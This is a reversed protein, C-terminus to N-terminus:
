KKTSEIYEKLADELKRLPRIKTTLLASYQPREAPRPFSNGDVPNIKTDVKAIKFLLKCANYWSLAGANTIHYIGKPVEKDILEKTKKALDLTYTFCSIEEDVVDLENMKKSLKLMIDFFSPKASPNEGKPGFLKSTRIIYWILSPNNLAVKAINQEGLYKSEGYKNVPNPRDKEEYGMSKNGPFVYDTSYHILIANIEVCLKALNGPAVGNIEKALEFQHKDEECNDVANYSATNIIINPNIKKIKTFIEEKKTIDLEEKDWSIVTYNSDKKFINNLPGGLNGLAGLILIKKM